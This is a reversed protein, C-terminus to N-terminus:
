LSRGKTNPLPKLDVRGPALAGALYKHLQQWALTWDDWVVAVHHGLAVLDDIRENQDKSPKNDGVKFEVWFGICFGAAVPLHTDPMGALVGEGKMISAEVKSRKGGNPIAYVSRAPKWHRCADIYACQIVSEQHNRAM